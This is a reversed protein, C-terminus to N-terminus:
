LPARRLSDVATAARVPDRHVTVSAEAVLHDDHPHPPMTAGDGIPHM